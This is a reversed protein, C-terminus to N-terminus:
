NGHTKAEINLSNKEQLCERIEALEHGNNRRTGAYGITVIIILTVTAFM